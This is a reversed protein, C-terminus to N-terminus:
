FAIYIVVTLIRSSLVSALLHFHPLLEAAASLKSTRKTSYALTGVYVFRPDRNQFIRTQSCIQTSSVSATSIGRTEATYSRTRESKTGFRNPLLGGDSGLVSFGISGRGHRMYSLKM